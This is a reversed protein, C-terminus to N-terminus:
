VRVRNVIINVMAQLEPDASKGHGMFWAFLEPDDCALLREFDQQQGADLQPYHDVFPALLVDLELMGRRCAWRLRALKEKSIMWEDALSQLSALTVCGRSLGANAGMEGKGNGSHLWGM